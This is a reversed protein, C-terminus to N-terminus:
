AIGPESDEGTQRDHGWFLRASDVMALFIDNYDIIYLKLALNHALM